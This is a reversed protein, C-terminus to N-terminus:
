LTVLREGQVQEKIGGWSVSGGRKGPNPNIPLADKIRKVSKWRNNAAKKAERDAIANEIDPVPIERSRQRARIIAMNFNEGPLKGPPMAMTYTETEVPAWTGNKPYQLMSGFRQNWEHESPPKQLCCFVWQDVMNVRAKRTTWQPVAVVMSCAASHVSVNLGCPCAYDFQPVGADDIVRMPHIFDRSESYIWAYLPNEGLEQRIIANLKRIHREASM